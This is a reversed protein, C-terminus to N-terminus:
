INIDKGEKRRALRKKFGLKSDTHTEVQSQGMKQGDKLMIYENCDCM